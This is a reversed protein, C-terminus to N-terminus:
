SVKLGDVLEDEGLQVIEELVGRYREGLDKHAVGGQALQALQGRMQAVAASVSSGSSPSVAGSSSMAMLVCVLWGVM